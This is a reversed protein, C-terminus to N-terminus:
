GLITLGSFVLGLPSGRAHDFGRHDPVLGVVLGVPVLLDIRAPRHEGLSRLEGAAGDLGGVGISGDKMWFRSARPTISSISM